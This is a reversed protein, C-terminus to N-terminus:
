GFSALGPAATIRSADSVYIVGATILLAEAAPM